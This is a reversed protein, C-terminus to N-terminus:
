RGTATRPTEDCGDLVEIYVDALVEQGIDSTHVGDDALLDGAELDGPPDALVANWDIAAVGDRAAHGEIASNLAEVRIAAGPDQPSAVRENITVLHICRADAFHDILEALLAESREPDVQSSVDNTGLNIVVQDAPGGDRDRVAELMHEVTAGPMAAITLDVDQDALHARIEEDSQHTISDGVIVVRPSGSSGDLVGCGTLALAVTAGAARLRTGGRSAGM